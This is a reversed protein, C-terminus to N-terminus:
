VNQMGFLTYLSYKTYETYRIGKGKVIVCDHDIGIKYFRMRPPNKIIRHTAFSLTVFGNNYEYCSFDYAGFVDIIDDIIVCAIESLATKSNIYRVPDSTNARLNNDDFVWYYTSGDSRHENSFYYM